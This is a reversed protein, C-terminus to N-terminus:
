LVALAWVIMQKDIMVLSLTFHFRSLLDQKTIM